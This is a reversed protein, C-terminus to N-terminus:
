KSYLKRLIQPKRILKYGRLFLLVIVIDYSKQCLVYNPKGLLLPSKGNSGKMLFYYQEVNDQYFHADNMVYCYRTFVCFRPKM